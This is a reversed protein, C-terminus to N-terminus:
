MSRQSVWNRKLTTKLGICISSLDHETFAGALAALVITALDDNIVPPAM